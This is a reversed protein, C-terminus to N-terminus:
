KMYINIVTGRNVHYLFWLQIAIMAFFAATRVVSLITRIKALHTRQKSQNNLIDM